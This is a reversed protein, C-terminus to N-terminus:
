SAERDPEFTRTATSMDDDQMCISKVQACCLPPQYWQTTTPTTHVANQLPAGARLLLAEVAGQRGVLLGPAGGARGAGGREPLGQHGQVPHVARKMLKIFDFPKLEFGVDANIVPIRLSAGIKVDKIPKLVANIPDIILKNVSNEILGILAVAVKDLIMMM